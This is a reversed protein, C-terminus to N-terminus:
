LNTCAPTRVRLVAEQAFRAKYTAIIKAIAAESANDDPHMVALVHSAERVPQGDMGRWQGQAPWTTFGDPFSAAVVGDVFGAWEADTVVGGPRQTGFYLREDVVAHESAACRPAPTTACAGAAMLLVCALAALCRRHIPM